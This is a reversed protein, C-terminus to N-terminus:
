DLGYETEQSRKVSRSIEAVQDMARTLRMSAGESAGMALGALNHALSELQKAADVASADIPSSTEHGQSM